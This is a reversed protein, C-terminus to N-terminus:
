LGHFEPIMVKQSHVLTTVEYCKADGVYFNLAEGNTPIMFFNGKADYKIRVVQYSINKPMSTWQFQIPIELEDPM